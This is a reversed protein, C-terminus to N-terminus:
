NCILNILNQRNNLDPSQIVKDLLFELREGVAKGDFGLAKIDSGSIDLQSIKYPECKDTIEKLLATYQTIDICFADRYYILVDNVINNDAFGLARKLSIKDPDIIKSIFYQMKICYDKFSNSCKLADLTHTLNNSCLNFLAFTRLLPKNELNQIVTLDTAKLAYGDLAGTCLLPRLVDPKKGIATKQLETFIREASINKLLPACDIAADFTKSEIEFGLTSAFRFLRLIRLADENFRIKPDGVARLLRQKIDIAGGFHDILGDSQNYCMANVTFDRRALDDKVDTVFHVGDPHRGDKYESETRFTTVEIMERNVVVTVTGHKLGTSITKDFLKQTDQPLASTTIDYDHPEKGCLLDRVCGGVIYAKHGNKILTDLVYNVNQPLDFIM